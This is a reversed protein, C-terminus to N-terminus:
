EYTKNGNLKTQALRELAKLNFAKSQMIKNNEPNFNAVQKSFSNNKLFVDKIEKLSIKIEDEFHIENNELLTNMPWPGGWNDMDILTNDVGESKKPIIILNDYIHTNEIPGTLHFTPSFMGKHTPYPRIGDNISVNGRIIIKVTGINKDQKYKTGNNCM